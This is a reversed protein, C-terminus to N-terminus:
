FHRAPSSEALALPRSISTIGLDDRGGLRSTPLHAGLHRRAARRSEDIEAPAAHDV